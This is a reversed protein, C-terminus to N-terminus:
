VGLLASFACKGGANTSSARVWYLRPAGPNGPAIYARKGFDAQPFISNLSTVRDSNLGLQSPFLLKDIGVDVFPALTVPGFIPIRYEYNFVGSTDGGPLILQYVPITQNVSSFVVNGTSDIRRRFGDPAM